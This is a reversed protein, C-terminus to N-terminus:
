AVVPMQYGAERYVGLIGDLLTKEPYSREITDIANVSLNQRVPQPTNRFESLITTMESLEEPEALFGNVNHNILDGLGGVNFAAVPLGTSMAELAALPMGEQRSTMCLLDIELWHADMSTVSGHFKIHHGYRDELEARMPGDGFIEATGAPLRSAIECFLDPGKEYSLRGVFAICNSGFSRNQPKIEVFSSILASPIPLSNSIDASVSIAKSLGATWQDVRNYLWVLGTGPDGSHYTSVVPILLITAVIRGIIGAKYGHTHLVAPRNKSLHVILSLLSSCKHYPINDDVLKVELPHSGYDKLFTVQAELGRRHLASALGGVHTEIGGFSRSDLLLTIQKM